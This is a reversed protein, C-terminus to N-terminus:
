FTKTSKLIKCDGDWFDFFFWGRFQRTKEPGKGNSILMSIRGFIVIGTM